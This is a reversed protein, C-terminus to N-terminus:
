KRGLEDVSAKNHNYESWQETKSSEFLGFKLWRGNRKKEEQSWSSSNTTTTLSEQTLVRGLKVTKELTSLSERFSLASLFSM